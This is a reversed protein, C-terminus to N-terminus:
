VGAGRAVAHLATRAPALATTVIDLAARPAAAGCMFIDLAAFGQEPWTHISIHSEALLLVGTVGHQPGFSHFHSHLITAGAALAARRLLSDIAEASILLAADVGHLDALLHQGAALHITTTLPSAQTV